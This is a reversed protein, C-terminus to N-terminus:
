PRRATGLIHPAPPLYRAPSFAFRECREIEFGAREIAARTDRALHCGGAIRPWFTADALHQFRAEGPKTARVHEYFRLEGGPRIVRLLEALARQQDPITCLVLSAVAVDFSAAECSLREANGDSVSIPVPARAAARRARERLHREPEIATVESVTAPYHAFNAGGGAGIEIVRGACGDLLRRRHEAGGRAEATHALRVYLRAFVPHRVQDTMSGNPACESLAPLAVSPDASAARKVLLQPVVPSCRPRRSPV